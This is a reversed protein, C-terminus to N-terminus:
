LISYEIYICLQDVTTGTTKVIEATFLPGKSDLVCYVKSNQTVYAIWFM